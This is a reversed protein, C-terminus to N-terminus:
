NFTNLLFKEIAKRVEARPCFFGDVMVVVTHTPRGDWDLRYGAYTQVASVSGTKMALRGKLRTKAGFSKLTGDVGAVPLFGVFTGAHEGRAMMELIDSIFRPSLRNGRSLGSGDRIITRRADIGRDTWLEKEAKICDARDGEPDIARLMGEAFLNDSRKMLDRMIEAAAPSRHTYVDTLQGRGDGTAKRGITIGAARLKGTLIGAFVGAPDPVSVNVSWDAKRRRAAPARVVLEDDWAGRAVDVGQQEKDAPLLRIKLSSAPRTIGKSPLAAVTNGAYNFGYLGAGYPWAIDEVEWTPVPGADRMSEEIVVTGSIASIGMRRLSAVISDAMGAYERFRDSGLTPDGSGTVVLNGDWRSRNRRDRSGTLGTRTVFRFDPGLLELASATTIVKMVSAPTMALSSNHDAIVRGTNLDKIYIGVPTSEAGDIDLVAAASGVAPLLTVILLLIRLIMM